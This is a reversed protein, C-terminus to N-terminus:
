RRRVASKSAECSPSHERICLLTEKVPQWTVDLGRSMNELYEFHESVKQVPRTTIFRM